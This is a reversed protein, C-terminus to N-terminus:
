GAHEMILFYPTELRPESVGKRIGTTWDSLQTQNNAVGHIAACWAERHKVIEQLKSLSMDMSDTIGDLCRMRDDGEGGVKLREWCWSRKWHTLKKCWTALTRSSWCWDKWHSNLISRRWSPSFLSDLPSELRRQCWLKFADTSQHEVKKITWSEDMRSVMYSQSYPGKVDLLAKYNLMDWVLSRLEM